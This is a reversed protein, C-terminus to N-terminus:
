KLENLDFIAQYTLIFFPWNKSVYEDTSYFLYQTM